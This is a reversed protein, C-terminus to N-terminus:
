PTLDRAERVAARNKLRVFFRSTGSGVPRISNFMAQSMRWLGAECKWLALFRGDDRIRDGGHLPQIAVMYAWREGAWESNFVTVEREIETFTVM